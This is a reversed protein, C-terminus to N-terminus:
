FAEANTAALRNCDLLACTPAGKAKSARFALFGLLNSKGMGSLAILSVCEGAQLLDLIRRVERRRYDDPHQSWVQSSM